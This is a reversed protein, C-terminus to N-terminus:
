RVVLQGLLSYHLKVRHMCGLVMQTELTLMSLEMKIILLFIFISDETLIYLHVLFRNLRVVRLNLRDMLFMLRLVMILSRDTVLCKSQRGNPTASVYVKDTAHPSGDANRLIDM